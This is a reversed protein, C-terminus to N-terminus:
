IFIMLWMDSLPAPRYKDCEEFEKGRSTKVKFDKNHFFLLLADVSCAVKFRNDMELANPIFLEDEKRNKNSNKNSNDKKDYAEWASTRSAFLKFTSQFDRDRKPPGGINDGDLLDALSQRFSVSREQGQNNPRSPIIGEGASPLPALTEELVFGAPPYM